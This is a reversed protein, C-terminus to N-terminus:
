KSIPVATGDATVAYINAKRGYFSYTKELREAEAEAEAETKCEARHTDGPGIRLRVVYYVAKAAQQAVWEDANKPKDMM